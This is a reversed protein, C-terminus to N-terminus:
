GPAGGFRYDRRYMYRDIDGYKCKIRGSRTPYVSAVATSGAVKDIHKLM